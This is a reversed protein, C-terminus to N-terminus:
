IIDKVDDLSRVVDAFGKAKNIAKINEEQLKTVKGKETKVELALFHGNVCAIIDPVGASQYKGGHVKIVYAGKSKLYKQIQRQLTAENM